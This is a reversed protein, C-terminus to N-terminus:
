LALSHTHISKSCLCLIMFMFYIENVVVCRNFKKNFLSHPKHYSAPAVFWGTVKSDSDDSKFRIKFSQLDRFGLIYIYVTYIHTHTHRNTRMIFGFRSFSCYGLKGFLYDMVLGRGGIFILDFPWLQLTVFHMVDRRSLRAPRDLQRTQKAVVCGHLLVTKNFAISHNAHTQVEISQVDELKLVIFLLAHSSHASLSVVSSV